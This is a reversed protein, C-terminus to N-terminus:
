VAIEGSMLRPLLLDRAARLKQNQLHLNHFQSLLPEVINDFATVLSPSPCLIEAREFDGAVVAPYAAGKAHNELYGVFLDTTVAQYLFSTPLSDPTIVAFGTSAIFSESPQWIVAHSRRNPRVCSWIIDGHRVIRRARSPAERINFSTTENISGPTVSSIDIYEIDGDYSSNINAQNISAVDDLKRREWGEPVGDVIRTHEYGPFRLRVFWERYLLRASEELLAMRRRNNEILDDYASLIDSIRNQIELTPFEIEVKALHQRPLHKITAGTFLSTFCGMRGKHLFSYFLFRHDLCERARIRHLAKQIMMGPVPEKWIACRGPEGGECMVIDGYKLGYRDLENHEFRMERLNELDFEGWRVNVNALYPLLEGRNKKEDLMKGLCFEAVEALPRKTWRM